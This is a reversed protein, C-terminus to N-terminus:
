LAVAVRCNYQQVLLLQLLKAFKKRLSLNKTPNKKTDNTKGPLMKTEKRTTM